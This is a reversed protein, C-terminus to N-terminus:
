GYHETSESQDHSPAKAEALSKDLHEIQAQMRASAILLMGIREALLQQTREDISM